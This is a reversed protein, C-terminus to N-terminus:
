RTHHAEPRNGGGLTEERTRAQADAIDVDDFQVLGKGRLREGDGAGESQGVIRLVDIRIASGDRQPMREARTARAQHCGGHVFETAAARTTGQARHADADALADRDQELTHSAGIGTELSMGVCCVCTAMMPAPGAPRMRPWSSCWCPMSETMM